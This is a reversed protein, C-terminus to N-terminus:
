LFKKAGKNIDSMSWGGSFEAQLYFSMRNNVLVIVPVTCVSM